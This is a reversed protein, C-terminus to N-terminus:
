FYNQELLQFNIKFYRTSPMGALKTEVLGANKLRKIAGEQKWRNLGTETCVERMTRQLWDDSNLKDVTHHYLCNSLFIASNVNKLKQALIPDYSATRHQGFEGHNQLTGM